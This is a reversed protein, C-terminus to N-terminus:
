GNSKEVPESHGNIFRYNVPSITEDVRWDQVLTWSWALQRVNSEAEEKTAFVLANGVWQNEVFVMPRYNVPLPAEPARAACDFVNLKHKLGFKQRAVFSSAAEIGEPPIGQSWVQYKKMTIGERNVLWQSTPQDATNGNMGLVCHSPM